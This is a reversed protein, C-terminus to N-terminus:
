ALARRPADSGRCSVTVGPVSRPPTSRQWVGNPERGIESVCLLRPVSRSARCNSSAILSSEGESASLRINCLRMRVQWREACGPRRSQPPSAIPERQPDFGVEDRRVDLQGSRESAAARESDLPHRSASRIAGSRSRQERHQCLQPCVNPRNESASSYEVRLQWSGSHRFSPRRRADAAHRCGVVGPQVCAFGQAARIAVGARSSEASHRDSLIKVIDSIKGRGKVVVPTGVFQGPRHPRGRGARTRREISRIM